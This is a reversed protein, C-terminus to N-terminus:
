FFDAIFQWTEKGPSRINNKVKENAYKLIDQQLAIPLEKFIELDPSLKSLQHSVAWLYSKNDKVIQKVKLRYQRIRIWTTNNIIKVTPDKVTQVVKIEQKAAGDILEIEKDQENIVQSQQTDITQDDNAKELNLGENNIKVTEREKRNERYTSKSLEENEADQEDCVRNTLKEDRELEANFVNGSKEKKEGSGPQKRRENHAMMEANDKDQGRENFVEKTQTNNSEIKDGKDNNVTEEILQGKNVIEVGQEVSDYHNIGNYYIQITKGMGNGHILELPQYHPNYVRINVGLIEKIAMLAEAGAWTGDRALNQLHQNIKEELQLDTLQDVSENAAMIIESIIVDRMEAMHVKLYEVTAQRLNMAEKYFLADFTKRGSLQQIIAYFLCNGDGPVEIVKVRGDKLEM